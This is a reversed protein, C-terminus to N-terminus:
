QNKLVALAKEYQEWKRDLVDERCTKVLAKIPDITSAMNADIQTIKDVRYEFGNVVGGGKWRPLVVFAENQREDVREELHIEVTGGEFEFEDAIM